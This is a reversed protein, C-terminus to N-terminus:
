CIIRFLSGSLVMCSYFHHRFLHLPRLGSLLLLFFSFYIFSSSGGSWYHLEMQRSMQGTHEFQTIKSKPLRSVRVGGWKWDKFSMQRFWVCLSTKKDSLSLDRRHTPTVCGLSHCAASVLCMEAFSPCLLKIFCILLPWVFQLTLKLRVPANKDFIKSKRVTPYQVLIQINYM